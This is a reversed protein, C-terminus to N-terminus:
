SVPRAMQNRQCSCKAVHQRRRPRPIPPLLGVRPIHSTTYWAHTTHGCRRQIYTYVNDLAANHNAKLGGLVLLNARGITCMVYPSKLFFVNCITEKIQKIIVAYRWIIVSCGDMSVFRTTVMFSDDYRKDVLEVPM